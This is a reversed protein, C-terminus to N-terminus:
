PTAKVVAPTTPTGAASTAGAGPGVPTAGATLAQGAPLVYATATITASLSTPAAEGGTASSGHNELTIDAGQITLLRGNVAIAGSSANRAVFGQVQGLLRALGEFSGKFVFTFPMQTFGAPAATAASGAAASLPTSTPASGSTGTSISSFSVDRQHTARDLEYILSPVEEAPPVAKGLTVVSAYAAAYRREASRAEAAQTQASALQQRASQVQSEVQTAQKREPSVVLMWGGALVALVAVAILVLRDRTTM